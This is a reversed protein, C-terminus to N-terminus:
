AEELQVTFKGFSGPAMPSSPRWDCLGAYAGAHVLINRLVDKTIQEDLVTLPALELYAV